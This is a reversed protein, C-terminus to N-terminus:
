YSVYGYYCMGNCGSENMFCTNGNAGLWEDLKDKRLTQPHGLSPPMDIWEFIRIAKAMQRMNRLIQEPNQVHQLVNYLWGEDFYINQLSMERLLDEAPMRCYIINNKEYRDLIWQPYECPDIVVCHGRNKCKLLISVPGGGIDLISKGKIDYTHYEESRQLIQLGMHRAYVVQKKEEGSTNVCDGWWNKEFEQDKNWSDKTEKGGEWTECHSPSLGFSFGCMEFLCTLLADSWLLFPFKEILPVISQCEAFCKLAVKRRFLSGGCAGYQGSFFPNHKRIEDRLAEQVFHGLPGAIAHHASLVKGRIFVDDELLMVWDTDMKECAEKIRNLWILAANTDAFNTAKSDGTKEPTIRFICGYKAALETLDVGGDGFLVIPADPYFKRVNELVNETAKPRNITQYFFGLSDIQSFGLPPFTM